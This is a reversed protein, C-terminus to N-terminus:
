GSMVCSVPTSGGRTTTVSVPPASGDTPVAWLYYTGEGGTPGKRYIYTGSEGWLGPLTTPSVLSAVPAEATGLNEYDFGNPDSGAPVIALNNGSMAPPTTASRTWIFRISSPTVSGSLVYVNAGGPAFYGHANFTGSSAVESSRPWAQYTVATAAVSFTATEALKNGGTSADFVRVTAGSSVSAPFILGSVTSGSSTVQIRGGVEASGNWAVVWVSGVNAFTVVVGQLTVNATPTGTPNTITASATTFSVPSSAPGAGGSNTAAVTATYNTGSTLGTLTTSTGSVSVSQQSGDSPTYTVLYGSAGSVSTWSLAADAGDVTGVSVTPASSPPAATTSVSTLTAAPGNGAANTAYVEIDYATSAALGSFTQTTAGASLTMTNYTGAPHVVIGVVINAPTGGTTPNVWQITISNQTEAIAALGTITGPAVLTASTTFTLLGSWGSNGGVNFAQIQVDYSTSATLGTLLQTTLTNNSITTWPGSGSLRYQLNYGSPAGGSSPVAWNIYATTPGVVGLAPIAPTGPPAVAAGGGAVAYVTVTGGGGVASTALITISTNPALVGNFQSSFSTITAPDFLINGTSANYVTCEFDDTLGPASITINPVVVFLSRNNHAIANLAINTTIQVTGLQQGLIYRWMAALTQRVDGGGQNTPFLDTDSPNAATPLAPMSEGLSNILDSNKIWVIAGGSFGLAYDTEAVSGVTNSAAPAAFSGGPRYGFPM